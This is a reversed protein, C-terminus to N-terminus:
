SGPIGINQDPLFHGSLLFYRERMINELRHVELTGLGQARQSHCQAPLQSCHQATPSRRTGGLTDVSPGGQGWMDVRCWGSSPGGGAWTHLYTGGEDRTIRKLSVSGSYDWGGHARGMPDGMSPPGPLSQGDQKWLSSVLGIWSSPGPVSNQALVLSSRSSIHTAALPICVWGKPIALRTPWIDGTLLSSVSISLPLSLYDHCKGLPLLSYLM